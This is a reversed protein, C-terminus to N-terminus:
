IGPSQSLRRLARVYPLGSNEKWGHNAFSCYMGANRFKERVSARERLAFARILYERARAEQLADRYILGIAFIANAFGPDLKVANELLPLAAQSGEM